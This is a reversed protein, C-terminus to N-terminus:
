EAPEGVAAFDFFVKRGALPRQRCTIDPLWQGRGLKHPPGLLEAADGERPRKGKECREPVAAWTGGPRCPRRGVWRRRGPFRVARKPIRRASVRVLSDVEPPPGM